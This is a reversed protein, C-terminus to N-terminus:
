MMGALQCCWWVAAVPSAHFDQAPQPQMAPSGPLHHAPPHPVRLVSYQAMHRIGPANHEPRPDVTCSPNSCVPSLQTLPWLFSSPVPTDRRHPFVSPTPVAWGPSSFSWSSKMLTYLYSFPPHLSSQALSKKTSDLTLVLPMFVFLLMPPETQVDPPMKRCHLHYLVPMLRGSLNHLRRSTVSNVCDQVGQQTHGHKFMPNSWVAELSRKWCWGHQQETLHWIGLIAGPGLQEMMVAKLTSVLELSDQAIDCDLYMADTKKGDEEHSGM